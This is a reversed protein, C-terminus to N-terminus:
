RNLSWTVYNLYGAFAVWLLYPIQLLGAAKNVQYFNWTMLAILVWLIGLWILALGCWQMNFYLISWFFNFILQYVFFWLGRNREVSDPALWVRAAGIGMLAFLIGWVVPFVWPPPTLSSKPLAMVVDMGRKTLWGSLAGVVEAIGIFIVYTWKKSGKMNMVRRLTHRSM